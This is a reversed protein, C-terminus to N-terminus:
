RKTHFGDAQKLIGVTVESIRYKGMKGITIFNPMGAIYSGYGL